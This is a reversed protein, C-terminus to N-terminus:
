SSNALWYKSCLNNAVKINIKFAEVLGCDIFIRVSALVTHNESLPMDDFNFSGLHYLSAEPVPYLQLIFIINLSYFIKLTFVNTVM